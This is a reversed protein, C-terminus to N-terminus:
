HVHAIGQMVWHIGQSAKGKNIINQLVQFNDFPNEGRPRNDLDLLLQATPAHAVVRNHLTLAADVVGASVHERGKAARVVSYATAIAAATGSSAGHALM